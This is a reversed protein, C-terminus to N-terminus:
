PAAPGRAQITRGSPCRAELRERVSASGPESESRRGSITPLAAPRPLPEAGPQSFRNLLRLRDIREPEGQGFRVGVPGQCAALVLLVAIGATAAFPLFRTRM